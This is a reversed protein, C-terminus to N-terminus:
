FNPDGALQDAWVAVQADTPKKAPTKKPGFAKAAVYALASLAAFQFITKKSM